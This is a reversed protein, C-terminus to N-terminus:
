RQQSQWVTVTGAVTTLNVPIGGDGVRVDADRFRIDKQSILPDIKDFDFRLAKAKIDYGHRAPLGINLNGATSEVYVGSTVSSFDTFIHGSTTAAILMGASKEAHIEGTTTRLRIEGSNEVARLDGSITKAFIVGDLRDLHISGASSVARIEGSLRQLTIDGQHNQFFHEGEVGSSNIDGKVTRLNLNSKEPVQVVFSFRIDDAPRGSRGPRRDEVSAIINRGQQQIIIRFNDLSRTGGLLSFERKVYLDVQVGDIGPTHVVDIDGVTSIVEVSPVRDTRFFASRYPDAQLSLEGDAWAPLHAVTPQGAAIKPTQMFFLLLLFVGIGTIQDLQRIM